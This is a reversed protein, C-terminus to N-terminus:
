CPNFKFASSGPSPYEQCFSLQCAGRLSWFSLLAQCPPVHTPLRAQAMNGSTYLFHLVELPHCFLQQKLPFGSAMDNDNKEETQCVATEKSPFRLANIPCSFHNFSFHYGLVPLFRLLAANITVFSSTGLLLKNGNQHPCLLPAPACGAHCFVVTHLPLCSTQEKCIHRQHTSTDGAHPAQWGPHVTLVYQTSGTTNHCSSLDQRTGIIWLAKSQELHMQFGEWIICRGGQCQLLVTLQLVSPVSFLNLRPKEKPCPNDTEM